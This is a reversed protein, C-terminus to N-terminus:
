LIISPQNSTCPNPLFLDWIRYKVALKLKLNLNLRSKPVPTQYLFCTQVSESVLNKKKKEPAKLWMELDEVGIPTPEKYFNYTTM